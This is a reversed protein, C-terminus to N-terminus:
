ESSRIHTQQQQTFPIPTWQQLLLQLQSEEFRIRKQEKEKKWGRHETRCDAVHFRLWVYLKLGLPLTQWDEMEVPLRFSSFDPYKILSNFLSVASPSPFAILNQLSPFLLHFSVSSIPYRFKIEQLIPSGFSSLSFSDRGVWKSNHPNRKVPLSLWLQSRLWCHCM